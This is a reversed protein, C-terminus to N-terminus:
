LGAGGSTEFEDNVFAPGVKAAVSRVKQVLM